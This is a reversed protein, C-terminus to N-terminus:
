ATSHIDWLDAHVPYDVKVTPKNLEADDIDVVIKYANKGFDGFNYGIM